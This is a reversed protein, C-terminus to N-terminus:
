PSIKSLTVKTLEYKFCQFCFTPIFLMKLANWFIKDPTDCPEINPGMRKLVRRMAVKLVKVPSKFVKPCSDWDAVPQNLCFSIIILASLNWAIVKVFFSVSALYFSDISYLSISDVLNTFSSPMVILSWSCNWWCM